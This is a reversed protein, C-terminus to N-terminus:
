FYKGKKRKDRRIIGKRSLVQNERRTKREFRPTQDVMHQSCQCSSKMM